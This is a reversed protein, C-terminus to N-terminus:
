GDLECVKRVSPRAILREAWARTKTPLSGITTSSLRAVVPGLGLDAISCTPPVLWEGTFLPEIKALREAIAREAHARKDPDKELVVDKVMPYTQTAWGVWARARAQEDRTSPMVSGPHAADLWEVIAASDWIVLDERVELVPVGHEFPVKGALAPPHPAKPTLEVDEVELALEALVIRVRRSYPCYRHAYLRM